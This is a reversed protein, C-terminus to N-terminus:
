YSFLRDRKLKLGVLVDGGFAEDFDDEESAPKGRSQGRSSHAARACRLAVCRAPATVVPQSM